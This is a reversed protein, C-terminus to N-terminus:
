IWSARSAFGLKGDSEKFSSNGNCIRPILCADRHVYRGTVQVPRYLWEDINERNWPFAILEDGELAYVRQSLQKKKFEILKSIELKVIEQYLGYTLLNLGVLGFFLPAPGRPKLTNELFKTQECTQLKVYGFLDRFAAM